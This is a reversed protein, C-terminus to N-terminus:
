AAHKANPEYQLQPEWKQPRGEPTLDVLNWMLDLTYLHRPHQGPDAKACFMESSWFHRIGDATRHFVTIMPRQHGKEDQAQYDRKFTNGRSSLLRLNQWGREKAFALLRDLPAHAIVVFDYGAGALHRAAGDLPDLVAVCSPCPSEERTLKATEGHEAKPRDDTPYRPFMFSYTVLSNSGPGFLESLKRKVPKGDAGIGEFAYDEPILGGPPLGRRAAAVSEMARKLEIEQALLDVRAKRAEEGENPFRFPTDRALDIAPTLVATKDTM